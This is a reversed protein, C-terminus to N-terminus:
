DTALRTRRAATWVWITFLGSHLEIISYINYHMTVAARACRRDGVPPLSPAVQVIFTVPVRVRLSPMVRAWILQHTAFSLVSKIPTTLPKYIIPPIFQESKVTCKNSQNFLTSSHGNRVRFYKKVFRLLRLLLTTWFYSIKTDILLYSMGM